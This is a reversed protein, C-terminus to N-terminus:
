DKLKLKWKHVSIKITSYINTIASTLDIDEETGQSGTSVTIGLIESQEEIDYRSRFNWILITPEKKM